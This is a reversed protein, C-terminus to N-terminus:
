HSPDTARALPCLELFSLGDTVSSSIVLAADKTRSEARDMGLFVCSTTTATTLPPTSSTTRALLSFAPSSRTTTLFSLGDTVSSSIVLAADKTRSEARDMGTILV